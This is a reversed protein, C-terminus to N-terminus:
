RGDESWAVAVGPPTPRHVGHSCRLTAGIVHRFYMSLMFLRARGTAPDAHRSVESAWRELLSLVEYLRVAEHPVAAEGFYGHLFAARYREIRGAQVVAGQCILPVHSCRLNALFCGVDRYISTRFLARTDLVTVRGGDSVLINRMAYDGHCLGLPLVEPLAARAAASMTELVRSLFVRNRTHRSLFDTVREVFCLFDTRRGHVAGLSTAAPLAHFVQLWAGANAFTSELDPPALRTRARGLLSARLSPEDLLEMVIAPYQPLLDLVRVAGFRADRDAFCDAVLRMARYEADSSAPPAMKPPALPAATAHSTHPLVGPANMVKVVLRLEGDAARVRFRFLGTTTRQEAGLLQVDLPRGAELGPYGCARAQLIGALDAAMQGAAGCPSEAAAFPM